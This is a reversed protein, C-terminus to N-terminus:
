TKVIHDLFLALATQSTMVQELANKGKAQALQLRALFQTPTSADIDDRAGSLSNEESRDVFDQLLFVEWGPFKSAKMMEATSVGYGAEYRQPHYSTSRGLYDSDQSFALPEREDFNTAEGDEISLTGADRHLRLANGMAEFYSMSNLGFVPFLRTFGQKIKAGLEPCSVLANLVDEFTPAHALMEARTLSVTTSESTNASALLEAKGEEFLGFDKYTKMMSIYDNRWGFKKSEIAQWSRQELATQADVRHSLIHTSVPSGLPPLTDSSIRSFRERHSGQSAFKLPGKLLM